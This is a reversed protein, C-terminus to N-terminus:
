RQHVVAVTGKGHVVLAHSASGLLMGAFGGHGRSGVVTLAVDASADLLVREANLSLVARLEIDLIDAWPTVAKALMQESERRSLEESNMDPEEGYGWTAPSHVNLMILKTRRLAAEQAAFALAALATASGDYGVLVPGPLLSATGAGGDPERLRVVIVTTHAHAAVQAAVSGLLLGEFGGAGRSGVAVIQARRSQEILVSAGAGALLRTQIELAPHAASIQAAVAALAQEAGYRSAEQGGALRDAGLWPGFGYLPSQYGCCLELTTNREQALLAAYQAAQASHASGDVGAVVPRPDRSVGGEVDPDM